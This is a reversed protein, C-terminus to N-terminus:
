VRIFEPQARGQIGGGRESISHFKLWCNSINDDLTFQLNNHDVVEIPEKKCVQFNKGIREEFKVSGINFPYNTTFSQVLVALLDSM